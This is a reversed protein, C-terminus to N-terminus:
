VAPRNSTGQDSRDAPRPMRAAIVVLAVVAAVLLAGLGLGFVLALIMLEAGGLNV